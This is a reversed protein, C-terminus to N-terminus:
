LVLSLVNALPLNPSESRLKQYAIQTDRSGLSFPLLIAPYHHDQVFGQSRKHYLIQLKGVDQESTVPVYHVDFPGHLGHASVMTSSAQPSIQGDHVLLGVVSYGMARRDSFFEQLPSIKPNHIAKKITALLSDPPLSNWIDGLNLWLSSKDLLLLICGIRRRGDKALLDRFELLLDTFRSVGLFHLDILGVFSRTGDNKNPDAFYYGQGAHRIYSDDIGLLLYRYLDVDISSLDSPLLPRCREDAFQIRVIAPAIKSKRIQKSAPLPSDLTWARVDNGTLLTREQINM